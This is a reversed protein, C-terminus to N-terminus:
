RTSWDFDTSSEDFASFIHTVFRNVSLLMVSTKIANDYRFFIM